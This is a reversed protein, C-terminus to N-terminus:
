DGHMIDNGRGGYMRDNGPGGHMVDNGGGSLSPGFGPINVACEHAHGGGPASRGHTHAGAEKIGHQHGGCQGGQGGGGKMQSVLTTLLSKIDNMMAMGEGKPAQGGGLLKGIMGGLGTNKMVSGLAKKAFGGIGGTVAKAAGKFIKGIGFGM